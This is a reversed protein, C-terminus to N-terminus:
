DGPKRRHMNFGALYFFFINWCDWQRGFYIKFPGHIEKREGNQFILDYKIEGESFGMGSHGEDMEKLEFQIDEINFFSEDTEIDAEYMLHFRKMLEEKPLIKGDPVIFENAIYYTDVDLKKGVFDNLLQDTLDRIEMEHDPHFEEYTFNTTMGKVPAFFVEADFLEKTIFNYKFRDPRPAIFGVALSNDELLQNLRACEEEFKEDDLHQEEGFVPNGLIERVTKPKADPDSNAAEFAMVNKLFENEIGPPLEDSNGGFIAGNEAMMKMKLFDNQLRMQEEPDDSFKEEDEPLENESNM